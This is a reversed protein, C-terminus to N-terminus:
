EAVVFEKPMVKFLIKKTARRKKERCRALATRPVQVVAGERELHTGVFATPLQELHKVDLSRRQEFDKVGPVELLKDAEVVRSDDVQEFLNLWGLVSVERSRSNYHFFSSSQRM